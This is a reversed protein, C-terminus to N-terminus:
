IKYVWMETTGRAHFLIHPVPSARYVGRGHSASPTGPGGILTANLDTWTNASISYRSVSFVGSLGGIFYIKDTDTEDATLGGWAAGSLGALYAWNGDSIRYRRFTEALTLTSLAFYVIGNVLEGNGKNVRAGAPDVGLDTWSDGSISYRFVSRDAVGDYGYFIYIFDGGDWIVAEDSTVAYGANM